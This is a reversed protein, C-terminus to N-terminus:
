RFKVLYKLKIQKENYVIYENYHLSASLNVEGANVPKGLPVLVGYDTTVSEDPNPHVGGCAKVSNFDDELRMNPKSQYNQSINGLAVECLTIFKVEETSLSRCYNASKSVMDAFYIGRGFM